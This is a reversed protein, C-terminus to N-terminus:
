CGHEETHTLIAYKANERRQSATALENEFTFSEGRKVAVVQASQIRNCESVANAYDKLLRQKEFCLAPSPKTALGSNHWVQSSIFSSLCGSRVFDGVHDTIRPVEVAQQLATTLKRMMRPSAFPPLEKPRRQKRALWDKRLRRQREKDRSKVL